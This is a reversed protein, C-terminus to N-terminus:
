ITPHAVSPALSLEPVRNYHIRNISSNRIFCIRFGHQVGLEPLRQTSDDRRLPTPRHTRPQEPLALPLPRPLDTM